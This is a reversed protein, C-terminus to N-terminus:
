SDMRHAALQIVSHFFVLNCFFCVYLIIMHDWKKINFFAYFLPKHTCLFLDPCNDLLGNITNEPLLHSESRVRYTWM